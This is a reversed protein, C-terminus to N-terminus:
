FAGKASGKGPKKRSSSSGELRTKLLDQLSISPKLPRLYIITACIYWLKCCMYIYIYTVSISGIPVIFVDWKWRGAGWFLLSEGLNGQSSTSFSWTSRKQGASSRQIMSRSAPGTPHRRTFMKNHIWHFDFNIIFQHLPCLIYLM